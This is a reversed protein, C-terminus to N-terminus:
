ETLEKIALEMGHGTKASVQIVPVDGLLAKLEGAVADCEDKPKTDCKNLLVVDAGSLQELYFDRKKEVFIHFRLVDALSVIKVSSAFPAVADRVKTPMALGTPEVIIVDPAVEDRIGELAETLDSVMSCCICGDPLEVANFGKSKFTAGDVGFTGIDNVLIAVKRGLSINAQAAEMLMTTKGSGLFGGLIYAKVTGYTAHM